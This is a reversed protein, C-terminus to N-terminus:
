AGIVTYPSHTVYDVNQGSVTYGTLTPTPVGAYGGPVCTFYDIRQMPERFTVTYTDWSASVKPDDKQLFYVRNTKEQDTYLAESHYNGDNVEERYLKQVKGKVEWSAGSAAGSYNVSGITKVGTAGSINFTYKNSAMPLPLNIVGAVAPLIGGQECWDGEYLRWWNGEDDTYSAILYPNNLSSNNM